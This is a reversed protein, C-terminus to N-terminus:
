EESDPFLDASGIVTSGMRMIVYCRMAAVLPTPGVAAEQTVRNCNWDYGFAAWVGRFNVKLEIGNDEIIPGGYAWDSSYPKVEKLSRLLSVARDLAPGDLEKINVLAM